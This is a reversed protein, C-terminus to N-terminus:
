CPNEISRPLDRTREYRGERTMLAVCEVHGTWCFMDVPQVQELRYGAGALAKADRALTAPNCSVYVIRAPHAAAIAAIAEPACGKRPPDVVIVDPGERGALAPLLTETAGAQFTANDIGNRRANEQADRIADPVIEIGTIRAAGKALPLTLSGCGCYLDWVTETGTLQAYDLVRRCLAEAQARNVQFFTRPSIRFAYGLLTDELQDAGWLTRFRDGLIVNTRAANVSLVISSLTPAADTASQLLADMGPLADGTAVLVLMLAGSTAERVMIHRLLGTHTEEDYPAVGAQAMWARVARLLANSRASQLLCADPIDVIAHSRAAYLGVMPRHATGGTPFAGKNRYHWPDEMGLTPLVKPAAFGGIRELCDIVQRRKHGLTSEYRLHQATCGGCRPFHPCPPTQREPAPSDIGELRGFAHRKAVKVIRARVTEGPLAGPVFVVQGDARCIGEFSAGLGECRLALRQNKQM